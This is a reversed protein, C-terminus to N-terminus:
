DHHYKHGALLNLVRYLQELLIVRVLQHPFTLRSLAVVHDARRRVADDVGYAGGIVFTIAPRSGAQLKELWRALERTSRAPGAEDLLVVTDSRDVRHLIAECERRLVRPADRGSHDGARVEVLELSQLPAIRTRYYAIADSVFRHQTKGVWIVRLGAM